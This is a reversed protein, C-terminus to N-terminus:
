RAKGKRRLGRKEFWHHAYPNDNYRAIEGYGNRTYMAHAEKLARNTDLQVTDLGMQVAQKELADLLRQAIGLGRASPDVWMRKIEGVGRKRVKIAGCGVPRGDLRAILFLGAPPVLEEPHASVTLGPDFGAEFRQQLERFYADICQRADASAPDAPEITVASVRMLREVESMAAIMRQRQAASLSTLLSTAFDQSHRDLTDFERLGKRTLVARRVRGDDAARKSSVLGQAELARLLRSLYGSDLALQTRLDRLDAGERGIEFLLRSEGLPRGRGLYDDSLVGIRQTVARNFSRVQQIQAEEM